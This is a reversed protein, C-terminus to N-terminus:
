KILGGSTLSTKILHDLALDINAFKNLIHYKELKSKSDQSIYCRIVKFGKETLDRRSCDVLKRAM